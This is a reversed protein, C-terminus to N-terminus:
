SAHLDGIPMLNRLMENLAFKAIDKAESLAQGPSEADTSVFVLTRGGDAPTIIVRAGWLGPKEQSWIEQHLTYKNM